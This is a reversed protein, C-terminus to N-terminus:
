EEGGEELLLDLEKVREGMILPRVAESRERDTESNREKV